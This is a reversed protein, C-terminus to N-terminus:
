RLADPTPDFVIAITKESKVARGERVAPTFRLQVAAELAADDFQRTPGRGIVTAEDVKGAEDIRLRVRVEGGLRQAYAEEPYRLLVDNVPKATEDLERPPYYHSAGPLTAPLVRRPMPVQQASAVRRSAVNGAPAAPNAISRAATSAPAEPAGAVLTVNLVAGPLLPPAAGPAPNGVALLLALHLLVSGLMAGPLRWELPKHAVSM